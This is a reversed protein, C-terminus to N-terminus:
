RATGGQAQEYVAVMAKAIRRPDHRNRLAARGAEVLRGRTGPDEHLTALAQAFGPGDRALLLDRGDESDLGAAAQPTAVVPVGRAWAELIKMRVGSAARLPVVMVGDPPFARCSESPPPHVHIGPGQRRGLGFVHVQAAPLRRLIEPWMEELFWAAGDENPRWGASGLLLVCPKGPLAEPGAPLLGPFPAPVVHLATRGDLARLREADGATLAVTAAVRTLARREWAALRSGERRFLFRGLGAGRMSWLHSEVNQARLVIPIGRRAAPACADLAQLQEAHVVDYSDKELLRAVRERVSARAHRAISLPTGTWAARLLTAFAGPTGSPVLHPACYPALEREITAPDDVEPDVPAVLDVRQDVAALAKLTELLLLRGGDRPPWPAKTAACLVKV